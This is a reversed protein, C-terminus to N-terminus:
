QRNKGMMYSLLQQVGEGSIGDLPAFGKEMKNEPKPKNRNALLNMVMAAMDNGGNGQAQTNSSDPNKKGMMSMLMETMNSSSNNGMNGGMLGTLMEPSLKQGMLAPLLMMLM